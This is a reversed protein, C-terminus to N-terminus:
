GRRTIRGNGIVTKPKRWDKQFPLLDIHNATLV